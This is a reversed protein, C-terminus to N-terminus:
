QRRSLVNAPIRCAPAGTSSGRSAQSFHASTQEPHTIGAVAWRPPHHLLRGPHAQFENREAGTAPRHRLSPLRGPAQRQELRGPVQHVVGTVPRVQGGPQCVGSAAQPDDRVHSGGPFELDILCKEIDGPETSAPHDQGRRGYRAQRDGFAGQGQQERKLKAQDRRVQCGPIASGSGLRAGRHPGARTLIPDIGAKTDMSQGTRTADLGPSFAVIAAPLPLGADRAALCTTVTLGGGASDGAFAITSPDTGDDLLARHASLTDQIGAPFPHEPAQRYDPSFARFGTKIVLQATVPLVAEPSGYVNGGGHFYLITGGPRAGQEPEVSLAPRGGLTTASTCFGPPVVMTSMLAAFGARLEEVSPPPGERRLQRLMADIKDRQQRSMKEGM